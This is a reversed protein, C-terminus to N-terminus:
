KQTHAYAKMYELLQTGIGKGRSSSDVCLNQIYLTDEDGKSELFFMIPTIKSLVTISEWPSFPASITQELSRKTKSDSQYAICIGHITSQEIHVFINQYSFYNGELEILTVIKPIADTKDKGFMMPFIFDDTDYILEAVAQLDDNKDLPRIM